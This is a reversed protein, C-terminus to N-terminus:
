AYLFDDNMNLNELDEFSFKRSIGIGLIYRNSKGFNVVNHVKSTNLCIPSNYYVTELLEADPYGGGDKQIQKGNKFEINPVFRKGPNFIGVYSQDFDGLLPINFVAQRKSDIHPMIITKPLTCMLEFDNIIEPHKFKDKIEQLFPYLDINLSHTFLRKRGKGYYNFQDIPIETLTKVLVDSLEFKKTILFYRGKM